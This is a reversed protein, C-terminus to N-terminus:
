FNSSMSSSMSNSKQKIIKEIDAAAKTQTHHLQEEITKLKEALTVLNPVILYIHNYSGEPTRGPWSNMIKASKEPQDAM